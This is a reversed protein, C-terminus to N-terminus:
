EQGGQRVLRGQAGRGARHRRGAHRLHGEGAGRRCPLRPGQDRRALEGPRRRRHHAREGAARRRQLGDGRRSPRGAGTRARWAPRKGRAGHVAAHHAPAAAQPPDADRRPMVLLACGTRNDGGLATTGDSVIRDGERRPKAGACLPVTDLHTSFLLRKGPRTGPLDVILNGTETPLPIREHATDFRIAADPVGLAKLDAVIAEGIAKEHGTVGEIALYRMLRDTAAEADLLSAPANPQSMRRKRGEPMPATGTSAGRARPAHRLPPPVPSPVVKAQRIARTRLLADKRSPLADVPRRRLIGGGAHNPRLAGAATGARAAPHVRQRRRADPPAGRQVAPQQRQAVIIHDADVMAVNEITFFPFTFRDRPANAPLDGRHRALGEPDRIAMLDIHGIKRVYGEADVAGLDILYVRKFRAPLPFCARRAQTGPACALGPDGEGNDREIVLARRDDIM